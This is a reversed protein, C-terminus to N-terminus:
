RGLAETQLRNIVNLAIEESPVPITIHQTITSPQSAMVRSKEDSFMHPILPAFKGAVGSLSHEHMWNISRSFWGDPDSVEMGQAKGSMIQGDKMYLESKTMNLINVQKGMAKETIGVLDDSMFSALETMAALAATLPLFAVRISAGLLTFGKSLKNISMLMFGGTVIELNGIFLNFYPEIVKLMYAIGKFVRGMTAGFKKLNPEARVLINDMTEYLEKLGASFGSKYIEKGANQSQLFFRQEAARASELQTALAGNANAMDSILPTLKPLLDKALVNGAKLQDNLEKTTYGMAKAALNFAGYLREM